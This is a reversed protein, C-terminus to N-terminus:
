TGVDCRRGPLYLWVTAVVPDVGPPLMVVSLLISLGGAVGFLTVMGAIAAPWAWREGTGMVFLASLASAVPVMLAPVALQRGRVDAHLVDTGQGVVTM